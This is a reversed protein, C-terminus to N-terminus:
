ALAEDPLWGLAAEIASRFPTRVEAPARTVYERARELTDGDLTGLYDLVTAADKPLAGNVGDFKPPLATWVVADLGAASGWKAIAEAGVDHRPVAGPWLGIFDARCGERGALADQAQVATFYDLLAWRTPVPTAGPALVLTLRGDRSTRAFELPLEPGGKQWDGDCRLVGPKWVLSGWGICAIKM